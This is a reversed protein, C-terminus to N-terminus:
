GIQAKSTCDIRAYPRGKSDVSTLAYNGGYARCGTYGDNASPVAPAPASAPAPAPRPAPAPAPAVAEARQRLETQRQKEAAAKREEREEAEKEQERKRREEEAAKEEAERIKEAQVERSKALKEETERILKGLEDREPEYGAYAARAFDSPSSALKLLHRLEKLHLELDQIHSKLSNLSMAAVVPLLLTSSDQAATQVERAVSCELQPDHIGLHRAEAEQEAAAVDGHYRDNTGFTVATGFGQRAIEANLLEDDLYVAALERGYRDQKERDHRLEVETGPPLKERLFDRAEEAMCEPDRGDAGLEPTDVNLLRVRQEEGEVEAILTDGDIVRTVAALEEDGSAIIMGGTGLAGVLLLSRLKLGM